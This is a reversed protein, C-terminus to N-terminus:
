EGGAIAASVAPAKAPACITISRPRAKIRMERRAPRAGGDFEYPVKRDFRIRFKTGRTVEAFPSHEAGRAHYDAPAGALRGARTSARHHPHETGPV